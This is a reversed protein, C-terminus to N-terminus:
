IEMGDPDELSEGHATVPPPQYGNSRQPIQRPQPATSGYLLNASGLMSDATRMAFARRIEPDDSHGTFVLKAAFFPKLLETRTYSSRFGLSRIARLKAKTEAHELIRLKIDRVQSQWDGVQPEKGERGNRNWEELARKHKSETQGRMAEVQPSGPRLDMIKEGSIRMQTGDFQRVYGVALFHVFCPDSGDDLRRSEGSWSVGLAGALKYMPVKGIGLKGGGGAIPFTENDIDVMVASIAIATGDPLAGCSPAPSILHGVEQIRALADVAKRTDSYDGQLTIAESSSRPAAQRTQARPAQQTNAPGREEPPPGDGAGRRELVAVAADIWAQDQPAYRNEPDDLLKKRKASIWYNLDRDDADEIAQGKNNGAPITYNAM